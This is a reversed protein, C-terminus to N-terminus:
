YNGETVKQIVELKHRIVYIMRNCDNIVDSSFSKHPLNKNAIDLDQMISNLKDLATLLHSSAVLLSDEKIM